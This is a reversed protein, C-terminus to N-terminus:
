VGDFYQHSFEMTEIDGVSFFGKPVFRRALNIMKESIDIGSVSHGKEAFFAADRGSGCGLDLIRANDPIHSLFTRAKVEPLLKLTNDHYAQATQDYSKKTAEKYDIDASLHM